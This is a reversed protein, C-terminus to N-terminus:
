GDGKQRALQRRMANEFAERAVRLRSYVTNVPIDLAAAIEPATFGELDALVFVERKAEELEGLLRLLLRQRDALEWLEVPTPPMSELWSAVEAYQAGSESRSRQARRYSSVTRRAVGYVWSRLSEVQQVSGLRNHIVVFVEQVVDDIADASVGLQRVAAWVLNFYQDYVQAFSPLAQSDGSSDAKPLNTVAANGEGM